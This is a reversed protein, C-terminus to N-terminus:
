YIIRIYGCENTDAIRCIETLEEQGEKSLHEIFELLNECSYLHEKMYPVNDRYSPRSQQIYKLTEPLLENNAFDIFKVFLTTYVKKM